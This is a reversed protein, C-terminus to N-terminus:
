RWVKPPALWLLEGRVPLSETRRVCAVASKKMVVAGGTLEAITESFDPEHGVLMLDTDGHRELISALKAADFGPALAPEEVVALGLQEAVIDATQRARPLPSALLAQPRINRAALAKAVARTEKQGDKNLPRETDPRDWAPWDAIGHRMFYIKM